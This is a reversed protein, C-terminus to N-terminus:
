ETKEQEREKKCKAIIGRFSMLYFLSIFRLLGMLFIQCLADVMNTVPGMGATLTALMWGELGWYVTYQGGLTAKIMKRAIDEPKFLGAADSILDTEKPKCKQEEKYGPTDTDPPFAITVSVKDALVEMSLAEVFGSLAFKSPSYATYGFVGVQGAASSTVAIAAGEGGRMFPLCVRTINVTGLYNIRMLSEYMRSPTSEVYGSISTGAVNFLMTPPSEKLIPTLKKNVEDENSVDLSVFGIETGNLTKKEDTYSKALDNLMDRAQKLKDEGRAILTIKKAQIKVLEQAISLGIGSSGGTVVVHSLLQTKDHKTRQVLVYLIAITVPVIALLVFTM